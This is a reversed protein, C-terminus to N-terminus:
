AQDGFFAAHMEDVSPDFRVTQTVDLSNELRFGGINFTGAASAADIVYSMGGGTDLGGSIVGCYNASSFDTAINVVWDGTGSDTVSTINYSAAVTAAANFRLWAKAASAHFHQRGPVVARTTDTGTEMESQVAIEIKGAVTDSAADVALSTGTITLGSLELWTLVGASDDWFLIRDAGPDALDTFGAIFEERCPAIYVVATGSLNIKSTGSTGGIKSLRVTTRSLTTGAATYTGIGIEFDTGDEIVYAVVDANAVGAEAFTCFANSVATGLTMTGTGTTATNVKARNYVKAM